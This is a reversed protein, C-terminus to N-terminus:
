GVFFDFPGWWGLLHHYKTWHCKWVPWTYRTMNYSNWKAILIGTSWIGCRLQFCGAWCGDCQVNNFPVNIRMSVQSVSAIIQNALSSMEVNVSISHEDGVNCRRLSNYDLWLYVCRNGAVNLWSFYIYLVYIIRHQSVSSRQLYKLSLLKPPQPPILDGDPFHIQQLTIFM